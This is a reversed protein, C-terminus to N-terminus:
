PVRGGVISGVECGTDSFVVFNINKPIQFNSCLKSYNPFIIAKHAGENEGFSGWEGKRLGSGLTAFKQHTKTTLSPQDSIFPIM